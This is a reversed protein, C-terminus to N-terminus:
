WSIRAVIQILRGGPDQANSTDRYATTVEYATPDAPNAPLGVPIFNISNLANLVEARFEGVVTRTIPVRKVLSVDWRVFAPGNVYNHRDVGCDGAVEQICTANNAPAFYRGSPAGLAGYGTPSTASVSFAKVTNDIIDQPLMYVRTKGAADPTMRVQYLDALEDQTFGVLRV